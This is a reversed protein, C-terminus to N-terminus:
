IGRFYPNRGLKFLSSGKDFAPLRDQYEAEIEPWEFRGGSGCVALWEGGWADVWDQANTGDPPWVILLLRDAHDALRRHDGKMVGHGRPVPDYGIADVGAEHLVHLWLGAGAGCEVIRHRRLAEIVSSSPLSLIVVSAWWVSNAM